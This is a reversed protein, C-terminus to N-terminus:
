LEHVSCVTRYVPEEDGYMYDIEKPEEHTEPIALVAKALRVPPAYLGNAQLIVHRLLIIQSSQPHRSIPNCVGYRWGLRKQPVRPM